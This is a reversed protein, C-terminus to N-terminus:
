WHSCLLQVPKFSPRGNKQLCYVRGLLIEEVAQARQWEDRGDKRDYVQEYHRLAEPSLNDGHIVEYLEEQMPLFADLPYGKTM